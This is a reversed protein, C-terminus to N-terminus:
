KVMMEIAIEFHYTNVLAWHLNRHELRQWNQAKYGFCIYNIKCIHKLGGLIDNKPASILTRLHMWRGTWRDRELSCDCFSVSIVLFTNWKVNMGKLMLIQTKTQSIDWLAKLKSRVPSPLPRISSPNPSHSNALSLKLLFLALRVTKARTGPRTRVKKSSRLIHPSLFRDQLGSTAELGWSRTEM